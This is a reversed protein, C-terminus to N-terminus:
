QAPPGGRNDDLNVTLSTEKKERVVTVPVNKRSRGTRLQSTIERTSGVKAGDVKVVVDGAKLGAKDAASNKIVSKVLVGDTVGFFDALQQQQGLSEGEIGLMPSQWTMEFRPIEITPMPPMPPIPPIAPMTVTGNPTEFVIGKRAGVTVTLEQASGNRWIALKAQHGAPTERVLRVFQEYGQVPMGNYELVVDGDKIGAKSAPSNEEVHAVEVGREEKLKLVKAREPTIEVVGIGLYSTGAHQITVAGAHHAEQAFATEAALGLATLTIAFLIRTMILGTM